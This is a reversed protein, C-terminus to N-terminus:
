IRNYFFLKGGISVDKHGTVKDDKFEVIYKESFYQFIFKDDVYELQGRYDKEETEIYFDNLLPSYGIRTAILKQM